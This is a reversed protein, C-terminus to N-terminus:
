KIFYISLVDTSTVVSLACRLVNKVNIEFSVKQEKKSIQFTIRDSGDTETIRQVGLKHM